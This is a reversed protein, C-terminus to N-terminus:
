VDTGYEWSAQSERYESFSAASVGCPIRCCKTHSEFSSELEPLSTSQFAEQGQRTHIILLPAQLERGQSISQSVAGPLLSKLDAVAPAGRFRYVCKNSMQQAQQALWTHPGSSCRTTSLNGLRAEPRFRPEVQLIREDRDM